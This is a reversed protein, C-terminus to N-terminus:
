RPPKESRAGFLSRSPSTHRNLAVHRWAGQKSFKTDKSLIIGKSFHHGEFHRGPMGQIASRLPHDCQHLDTRHSRLDTETQPTASAICERPARRTRGPPSAQARPWTECLSVREPRLTGWAKSCSRDAILRRPAHRRAPTPVTQPGSRPLPPDRLALPLAQADNVGNGGSEFPRM